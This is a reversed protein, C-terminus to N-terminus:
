FLNFTLFFRAGGQNLLIWSVVKGSEPDFLIYGLPSKRNDKRFYAFIYPISKKLDPEFVSDIKPNKIYYKLPAADLNPLGVSDIYRGFNVLLGKIKVMRDSIRAKSTDNLVYDLLIFKRMVSDDLYRNDHLANCLGKLKSYYAKEDPNLANKTQGNALGFLNVLAAIFIFKLMFGQVNEKM